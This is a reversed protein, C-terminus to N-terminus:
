QFHESVVHRGTTMEFDADARVKSDTVDLPEYISFQEMTLLQYDILCRQLYWVVAGLSKVSLEKDDDVTMNVVADAVTFNYCILFKKETLANGNGLFQGQGIYEALKSPFSRNVYYNEALKILTNSATWFEKDPVLQDKIATTLVTQFLHQTRASIQNKEYLVQLLFFLINLRMYVNKKMGRSNARTIM